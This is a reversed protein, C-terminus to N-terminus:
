LGLEQRLQQIEEVAKFDGLMLRDAIRHISAGPSHPFMWILWEIPDSIERSKQRFRREFDAAEAKTETAFGSHKSAHLIRRTLHDRKSQLRNLERQQDATLVSQNQRLAM